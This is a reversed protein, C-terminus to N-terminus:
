LLSSDGTCSGEQLHEADVSLGVEAQRPLALPLVAAVAAAEHDRPAADEGVCVAHVVVCLHFM